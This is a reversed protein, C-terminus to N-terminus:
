FEGDCDEIIGFFFFPYFFWFLLYIDFNEM